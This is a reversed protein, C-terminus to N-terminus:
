RWELQLFKELSITSENEVEKIKLWLLFDELLEKNKLLEEIWEKFIDANVVEPVDLTITTM